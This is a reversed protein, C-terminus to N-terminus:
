ELIISDQKGIPLRSALADIFGRLSNLVRRLSARATQDPLSEFDIPDCLKLVIRFEGRIQEEVHSDPGNMCMSDLSLETPISAARRRAKSGKRLLRTPPTRKTQAHHQKDDNKSSLSVRPSQRVAASPLLSPKGRIDIIASSPDKHETPGLCGHFDLHVQTQRHATPLVEIIDRDRALVKCQATSMCHAHGNSAQSSGPRETVSTAQAQKCQEGTTVETRPNDGPDQEGSRLQM